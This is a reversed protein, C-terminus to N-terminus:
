DSFPHAIRSVHLYRSTLDCLIHTVKIISYKACTLSHILSLNMEDGLDGYGMVAKATSSLSTNTLNAVTGATCNIGLCYSISTM